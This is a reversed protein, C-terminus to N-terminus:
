SLRKKVAAALTKTVQARILEGTHEYGSPVKGDADLQVFQRLVKDYLDTVESITSEDWVPAAEFGEDLHQVLANGILRKESENDFDFLAEEITQTKLKVTEDGNTLAAVAAQQSSETFAKIDRLLKGGGTSGARTRGSTAVIERERRRLTTEHAERLAEEAGAQPESLGAAKAVAVNLVQWSAKAATTMEFVKGYKLKRFDRYAALVSDKDNASVKSWDLVRWGELNGTSVWRVGECGVENSRYLSSLNGYVSALGAAVLEQDQKSVATPLSIAQFNDTAVFEEDSWWVQPQFQPHVGVAIRSLKWHVSWWNKGKAKVSPADAAGARKVARVYTDLGGGKPLTAPASLIWWAATSPDFEGTAEDKPSRFLPTLYKRHLSTQIDFGVLSRLAGSKKPDRDKLRYFAHGLKNGRFLSVGTISGLRAVNPANEFDSLSSAKTGAILADREPRLESLDRVEHADTPRPFGDVVTITGSVPELVNVFEFRGYPGSTHERGKLFLTIPAVRADSFWVDSETHWVSVDFRSRLWKMLAVHKENQLIAAPLVLAIRGGPKLWVAALLVFWAALNINDPLGAPLVTPGANGAIAALDKKYAEPTLAKEDYPPNGLVVEFGAPYNLRYPAGVNPMVEVAADGPRISLGDRNSVAPFNHGKYVDRTALNVTSLHVAFSDLDNGFVQELVVEHPKSERLRTYAEVLFTGGGACFDVVRDDPTQIAWATMARALRTQTYHQGMEQRQDASILREFIVGIIESNVEEFRVGDLAAFLELWLARLTHSEISLIYKAGESLGFITEYDGTVRTAEALNKLLLECMLESTAPSAGSLIGKLSFTPRVTEYFLGSTLVEGIAQAVFYRVVDVKTTDFGRDKAEQAVEAPLKLTSIADLVSPLAESLLADSSAKFIALYVEDKGVKSVSQGQQLLARLQAFFAELGPRILATRREPTLVAWWDPVMAEKEDLLSLERGVLANLYGSSADYARADFMAVSLFNTTFALQGGLAKAKAIAGTVEGLVYPHLGEPTEPRKAEGSILLERNGDARRIEVDPRKNIKKANTEVAWEIKFGLVEEGIKEATERIDSLMGVENRGTSFRKAM